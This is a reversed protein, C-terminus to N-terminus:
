PALITDRNGTFGVTVATRGCLKSSRDFVWFFGDSGGNRQAGDCRKGRPPRAYEDHSTAIGVGAGAVM